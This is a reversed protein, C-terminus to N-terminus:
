PPQLASNFPNFLCTGQGLPRFSQDAPGPSQDSSPDLFWNAHPWDAMLDVDEEYFSANGTVDSAQRAALNSTDVSRGANDLLRRVLRYFKQSPHQKLLAAAQEAKSFLTSKGVADPYVSLLKFGLVEIFVLLTADYTPAWKFLWKYTTSRDITSLLDIILRVAHKIISMDDENLLRTPRGKDLSAQQLRGLPMACQIIKAYHTKVKLDVSQFSCTHFDREEYFANWSSLWADLDFTIKEIPSQEVGMQLRGMTRVMDVASCLRVDSPRSVPHQLFAILDRTSLQEMRSRRATGFAIGQEFHLIILWARACRADYRAKKSPRENRSTSPSDEVLRRLAKDLGLDKAMQYAHGLAFWTKESYTALLVMAETTELSSPNEFLSRAALRHAEEQCMRFTDDSSNDAYEARAAIYLVVTFTFTSRGRISDFTDLIPDFMPLFSNCGDMFHHFLSRARIENVLGRSVVDELVYTSSRRDDRNWKSQNETSWNVFNREPENRMPPHMMVHVATVPTALSEPSLQHCPLGADQYSESNNHRTTRSAIGSSQALSRSESRLSRFESESPSSPHQIETLSAFRTRLSVVEATLQKLQEGEAGKQIRGNQIRKRDVTKDFVCDVGSNRCRRCPPNLNADCRMKQRRCMRCAKYRRDEATQGTQVSAPGSYAADNEM